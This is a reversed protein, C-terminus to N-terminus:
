NCLPPLPLKGLWIEFTNPRLDKAGSWATSLDKLTMTMGMSGFLGALSKARDEDFPKFYRLENTEGSWTAQIISPVNIQAKDVDKMSELLQLMCKRQNIDLVQVFVRSPLQGIALDFKAKVNANRAASRNIAAELLPLLERDSSSNAFSLPQMMFEVPVRDNNLLYEFMAVGFKRKEVNDDNLLDIMSKLDNLNQQWQTYYFGVGAITLPILISSILQPTIPSLLIRLYGRKAPAPEPPNKHEVSETMLRELCTQCIFFPESGFDPLDVIV